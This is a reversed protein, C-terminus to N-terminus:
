KDISSNKSEQMEYINWMKDVYETFCVEMIISKSLPWDHEPWTINTKIRSYLNEMFKIELRSAGLGFIRHLIESFEEIKQPIKNKQISFDCELHQYITNRVPEGLSSLTEDIAEIVIKDFQEKRLNVKTQYITNSNNIDNKVNTEFLDDLERLDDLSLCIKEHEKMELPNAM